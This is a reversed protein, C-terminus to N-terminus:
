KTYYIGKKNSRANIFEELCESDVRHTDFLHEELTSPSTFTEPCIFCRIQEKEQDAIEVLEIGEERSIVPDNSPM